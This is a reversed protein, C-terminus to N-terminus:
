NCPITPVPIGSNISHQVITSWPTGADYGYTAGYQYAQVLAPQQCAIIPYYEANEGPSYTFFWYGDKKIVGIQMDSQFEGYHSPLYNVCTNKNEKNNTKQLEIFEKQQDIFRRQDEILTQSFYKEYPDNAQPNSPSSPPPPPPPYYQNYRYDNFSLDNNSFDNNSFDNYDSFTEINRFFLMSFLLLSIMLVLIALIEIVKKKM